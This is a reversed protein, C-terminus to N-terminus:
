IRLEVIGTLAGALPTRSREVSPFPSGSAGGGQRPAVPILRVLGEVTQEIERESRAVRIPEAPAALHSQYDAQSAALIESAPNSRAVRNEGAQAPAAYLLGLIVLLVSTLRWWPIRNDRSM